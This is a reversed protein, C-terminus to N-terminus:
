QFETLKHRVEHQLPSNISWFYTLSFIGCKYPFLRRLAGPSESSHSNTVQIFPSETAIVM